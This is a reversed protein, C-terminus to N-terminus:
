QALPPAVQAQLPMRGFFVNLLLSVQTNFPQPSTVPMMFAATLMFRRRFLVNLGWTLDVVDPTGSIDTTSFPNRHNLPTNVHVEFTPAVTTLFSMPDPSRFLYYGIGFDNYMLTVDRSNAPFDFASFGHIYWNRWNYIYGIFPQFYITNLGFLYPAGGFSGPGTPPEVSLGASVLSGTRTNQALIYKTFIALNGVATRTPTSVFNMPSDATVTDLPLRLGISGNGECFTKEVGFFYQYAKIHDIPVGLRSNVTDNINNYYNFVFFIRDQPRPSNNESIKFGALGPYFASGARSGPVPPPFGGVAKPSSFRFPSQDGIMSPNNSAAALGGGFGPGGTEAGAGFTDAAAAFAAEAAPTTGAPPAAPQGPTPAVGSPIPAGPAPPTPAPTPAEAGPAAPTERKPLEPLNPAKEPEASPPKVAGETTKSGPRPAAGAPPQSVAGGTAPPEPAPALELAPETTGAQASQPSPTSSSGVVVAPHGNRLPRKRRYRKPPESGWEFPNALSGIADNGGMSRFDAPQQSPITGGNEPLQGPLPPFDGNAVHSASAAPRSFELPIPEPLRAPSAPGQAEAAPRAAALVASWALMATLIAKLDM